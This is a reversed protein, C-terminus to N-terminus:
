SGPGEEGGKSFTTQITQMGRQPPLMTPRLPLWLMHSQDVGGRVRAAPARVRDPATQLPDAPPIHNIPHFLAPDPPANPQPRQSNDAPRHWVPSM